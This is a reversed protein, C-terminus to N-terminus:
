VIDAYNSWDTPLGLFAGARIRPCLPQPPTM